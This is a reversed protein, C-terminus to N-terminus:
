NGLGKPKRWMPFLAPGVPLRIPEGHDVYGHRHYMTRLAPEAAELYAPTGDRDLMAHYHDLLVTGIGRYQRSPHVALIAFWEHAPADPHHEDLMVDFIHFRGLLPGTIAALRADHDPLAPVADPAVPLWIAVAKRDPTTLVTGSRVGLEVYLGFFDPFIRARIQPDEVLWRCPALDHFAQAITHALQDADDLTARQIDLTTTM